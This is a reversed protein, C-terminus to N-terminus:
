LVLRQSDRAAQMASLEHMSVGLPATDTDDGVITLELEDTEVERMAGLLREVGKRRELRGLYLLRLPGDARAPDSVSVDRTGAPPPHRVCQSSALAGQGYFREYSGLIDGGAWLLKDAYRLSFRELDFLRLAEIDDAVYGNLAANMEVTSRARVCVLSERLAEDHTRRAQLTVCGEGGWDPFEILDVRREGCLDRLAEWVRGSWEHARRYNTAAFEGVPEPVFQLEVGPPFESPNEGRKCSVAAAEHVDSTLVTVDAVTSLLRALATVYVAIGGHGFPALDRSVLVM